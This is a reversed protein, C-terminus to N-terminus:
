VRLAVAHCPFAMPAAHARCAIHSNAKLLAAKAKKDVLTLLIYEDHEFTWWESVPLKCKKLTICFPGIGTAACDLVHIQPRESEPITIEFGALPM